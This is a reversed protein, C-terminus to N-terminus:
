IIEFVSSRGLDSEGCDSRHQPEFAERSPINHYSSSNVGSAIIFRRGASRNREGIYDAIEDVDLDALLRVKYDPM